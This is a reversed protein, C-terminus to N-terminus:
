CIPWTVQFLTKCQFGCAVAMLGCTGNVAEYGLLDTAERKKAKQALRYQTKGYVMCPCCLGICCLSDAECMGHKWKPDIESNPHAVQGPRHNAMSVNPGAPSYPNYTLTREPLTTNRIEDKRDRNAGQIPIAVQSNSLQYDSAEQQALVPTSSGNIPYPLAASPEMPTQADTYPASLAPHPEIPTPISYPSHVRNPTQKEVLYSPRDGHEQVDRINQQQPGFDVPSEDITSNTPSSFQQFVAPQMQMPTNAYSFRSDSHLNHTQLLGPAAAGGNIRRPVLTNDNRQEPAM